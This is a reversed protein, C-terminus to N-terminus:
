QSVIGHCMVCSWIHVTSYVRRYVYIFVIFLSCACIDYRRCCIGDTNWHFQDFRLSNVIHVLTLHGFACIRRLKIWSLFHSNFILCRNYRFLIWYFEDFTIFLASQSNHIDKKEIKEWKQRKFKEYISNATWEIGYLRHKKKTKERNLWFLIKIMVTSASIACNNNHLFLSNEKRKTRTTTWYPCM